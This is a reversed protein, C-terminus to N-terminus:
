LFANLGAFSTMIGKPSRWFDNLSAFGTMISEYSLM